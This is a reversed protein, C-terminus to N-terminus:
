SDYLYDTTETADEDLSWRLAALWGELHSPNELDRKIEEPYLTAVQQAKLAARERIDQPVENWDIRSRTHRYYWLRDFLEDAKIEISLKNKM